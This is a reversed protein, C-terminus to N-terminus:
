YGRPKKGFLMWRIGVPFDKTIIDRGAEVWGVYIMAPIFWIPLTLLLFTVQWRPRM